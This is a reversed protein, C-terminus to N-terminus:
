AAVEIVSTARVQHVMPFKVALDHAACSIAAAENIADGEWVYPTGEADVEVRFRRFHPGARFHVTQVAERESM